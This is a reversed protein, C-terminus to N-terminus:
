KEFVFFLLSYFKKFKLLSFNNEEFINLINRKSYNKFDVEWHHHKSIIKNRKTAFQFNNLHFIKFDASIRFWFKENRPLSVFLNKTCNKSINIIAKRFDEFPIHEFVEFALIHDFKQNFEYNVIDAVIDPQKNQDIDITTVDYGKSKLYNSTFGSGVGIELIKDGKRIYKSILEQQHWYYRWHLESELKHIWESAYNHNKSTM